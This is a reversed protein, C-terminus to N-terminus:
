APTIVVTFNDFRYTNTLLSLFSHRIEFGFTMTGGTASFDPSGWGIDSFDGSNTTVWSTSYFQDGISYVNGGQLILPRVFRNDDNAAIVDLFCGITDVEGCEATSYSFQDNVLRIPGTGGATIEVEMCDGPNGSASNAKTATATGLQSLTWDGSDMTGDLYDFVCEDGCCCPYGGM